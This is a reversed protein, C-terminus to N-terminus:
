TMGYVSILSGAAINGAGAFFRISTLANANQWQSAWVAAGKGTPTTFIGELQVVSKFLSKSTYHPIFAVFFGNEGAAAGSEAISGFHVNASAGDFGASATTGSGSLRQVKYNAGTDGNFQGLINNGTGADTARVMGMVILHKYVDGPIPVVLESKDQPFVQSHIVGIPFEVNIKPLGKVLNDQLIDSLEEHRVLSNVLTQKEDAYLTEGNVFRELVQRLIAMNNEKQIILGVLGLGSLGALKFFNRRSIM